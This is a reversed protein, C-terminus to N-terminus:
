CWRPQKRGVWRCRGRGRGDSVLARQETAFQPCSPEARIRSADEFWSELENTVAPPVNLWAGCERNCPTDNRSLLRKLVLDTLDHGRSCAKLANAYGERVDKWLNTYWVVYNAGADTVPYSAIFKQCLRQLLELREDPVHM